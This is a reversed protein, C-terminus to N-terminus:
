VLSRSLSLFLLLLSLSVAFSHFPFSFLCCLLSLSLYLRCLHSLSDFHFVVHLRKAFCDLESECYRKAYVAHDAVIEMDVTDHSWIELCCWPFILSISLSLLCPSLSFYLSKMFLLLTWDINMAM